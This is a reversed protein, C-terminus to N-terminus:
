PQVSGEAAKRYQRIIKKLDEPKLNGHTNNNVMIVPALSCCGLCSVTELTFLRDKTTEGNGIELSDELAKTIANAGSVHCATGHCVRIINKGVPHLRFQSYFTVVGYITTLPIGCERHIEEIRERTIYGDSEQAKQLEPILVGAKGRYHLNKFDYRKRESM